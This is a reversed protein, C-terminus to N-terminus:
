LIATVIMRPSGMKVVMNAVQIATVSKSVKMSHRCVLSCPVSMNDFPSSGHAKCSEVYISENMPVTNGESIHRPATEYFKVSMDSSRVADM